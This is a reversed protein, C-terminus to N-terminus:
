EIGNTGDDASFVLTGNLNVLESQRFINGSYGPSSDAGGPNIDKVRVTGLETGDSKWLERGSTGDSASFFLLGGVATLGLPNSSAAGPNIDKVRFTGLATGDSKWLERGGASDTATFFLTSGVAMFQRPQSDPNGPNLDKVLVPAFAPVLRKELIDLNLTRQVKPRGSSGRLRSLIGKFWHCASSVQHM